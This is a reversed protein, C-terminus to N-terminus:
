LMFIRILVSIEQLHMMSPTSSTYAPSPAAVTLGAAIPFAGNFLHLANFINMFESSEPIKIKM